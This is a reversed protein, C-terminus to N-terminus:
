RDYARGAEAVGSLAVGDADYWPVGDVMTLVVTKMANIDALPNGDVVILDALKGPELTGLESDRDIIEAGVKTAASIVQIPTMGLDVLAAMERWMAEMHFNLPSAADTGVGMYAGVEIFQSGSREANRTEDGINAFYSLRHIDTFSRQLEAYVDAPMDRQLRPDSLREPFARTAPYVWIRHSATQVIPIRKHAITALLDDPYRPTRASGVHQLVDVGATLADRIADPQYLHSHVKVGLKHAEDVVATLDDLTLGLWTKIIDAGREVNDRVRRRAETPSSILLQYEPPIGDMGVRTIWPGSIILRPGPIEGAEIRKRTDLIQFPTGLDVGTTVGGRLMQKAAIPMMEPLRQLGGIFGYYDDYEGHGILDLHMHLDILGPLITKGRTDIIHADAPIDVRSATNAAVIRNGRVVVVADHIPEGEYGDLLMGGVLAIPTDAWLPALLLWSCIVVLTRM